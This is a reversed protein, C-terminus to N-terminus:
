KNFLAVAVRRGEHVLVNYTRCAAPTDMIELGIKKEALTKTLGINLFTLQMGTGVIIIEPALAIIPELDSLRLDEPCTVQWDKIIAEPTLILHGTLWEEGVRVAGDDWARIVNANTSDLTLKM